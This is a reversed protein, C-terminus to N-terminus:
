EEDDDSPTSGGQGPNSQGEEAAEAARTARRRERREELIQIVREQYEQPNTVTPRTAAWTVDEALPTIAPQELEEPPAKRQNHAALAKARLEAWSLGESNLVERRLWASDIEDLERWKNNSTYDRVDAVGTLKSTFNNLQNNASTQVVYLDWVIKIIVDNRGGLEDVMYPKFFLEYSVAM